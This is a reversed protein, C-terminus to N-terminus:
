ALAVGGVVNQTTLKKIPKNADLNNVLSALVIILLSNRIFNKLNIMQVEKNV